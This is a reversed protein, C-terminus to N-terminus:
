KFWDDLDQMLCEFLMDAYKHEFGSDVYKDLAETIKRAKWGKEWISRSILYAVSEINENSSVIHKERLWKIIANTPPRKKYMPPRDWEIYHMYGNFITDIVINKGDATWSQKIQRYLNSGHLTNTGTKQNVGVDSSMIERAARVIDDSIWQIIKALKPTM